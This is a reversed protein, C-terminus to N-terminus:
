LNPILLGLAQVLLEPPVLQLASAAGLRPHHAMMLALSISSRSPAPQNQFHIKIWDGVFRLHGGSFVEVNQPMNRCQVYLFDGWKDDTKWHCHVIPSDAQLLPELMRSIDHLHIRVHRSSGGREQVSSATAQGYSYNGLELTLAGGARWLLEGSLGSDCVLQKVQM